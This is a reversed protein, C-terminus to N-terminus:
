VHARGIEEVSGSLVVQTPHNHNAAVVDIGKVIEAVDERTASVALMTGGGSQEAAEAMSAGRAQSAALFTAEDMAGAAHLASIEGYSHGASMSFELGVSRLLALMSASTLGISPQANQTETLRAERAKKAEDGFAPKPFVIDHLKASAHRDWVALATDHAMALDAGMFTYQSGQGPFMFAVGGEPAGFGVHVMPASKSEGAEALDALDSSM